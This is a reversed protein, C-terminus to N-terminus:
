RESEASDKFSYSYTGSIGWYVGGNLYGMLIEGIWRTYAPPIAQALEAKTMWDIQMQRRAYDAGSFHGVPQIIDGEKVSRGMKVPKKTKPIYPQNIPFNTEFLRPRHVLLGFYSGNLAIPNRLPSGPVNEIIYPLGTKILENRTVEILDPYEKGELRWQNASKSYKQCPPSSHIADFKMWHERLFEVADAQHFEFPYHKQPKIDVGVVKFGALYYGYGTGGAGCHLDLIIKEM